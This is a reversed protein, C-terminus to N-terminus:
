SLHRFAEFTRCAIGVRDTATLRHFLESIHARVTRKSIKLRAAIEKDKKSQLILGVVEAQRPSLALSAVIRQWEEASFIPPRSQPDHTPTSHLPAM